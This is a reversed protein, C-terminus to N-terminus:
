SSTRKVQSAASAFVTNEAPLDVRLDQQHVAGVLLRLEQEALRGLHAQQPRAVDPDEGTQGHAVGVAGWRVGKGDADNAHDGILPPLAQPLSHPLAHGDHRFAGLAELLLVSEDGLSVTVAAFRSFM